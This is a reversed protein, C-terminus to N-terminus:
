SKDNKDHQKAETLIWRRIVVFSYHMAREQLWVKYHEAADVSSKFKARNKLWDERVLQSARRSKAHKADTGKKSYDKRNKKHTSLDSNMRIKQKEFEAIKEESLQLKREYDIMAEAQRAFGIAKMAKMAPGIAFSVDRCTVSSAPEKGQFPNPCVAEAILRLAMASFYEAPEADIFGESSENDVFWEIIENLVEVNDLDYIDLDNDDGVFELFEGYRNHVYAFPYLEDGEWRFYAINQRVETELRQIEKEREEQWYVDILDMILNQVHIVQSNTRKKRSLIRRAHNAIENLATIPYTPISFDLPLTHQESM